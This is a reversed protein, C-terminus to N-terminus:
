QLNLVGELRGLAHVIWYVELLLAEVGLLLMVMYGGCPEVKCVFSHIFALSWSVVAGGAMLYILVSGGLM